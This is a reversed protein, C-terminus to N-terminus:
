VFDMAPCKLIKVTLWQYAEKNHHHFKVYKMKIKISIPQVFGRAHAPYHSVRTIACGVIAREQAHEM